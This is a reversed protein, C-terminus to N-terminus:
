HTIRLPNKLWNDMLLCYSSRVENFSNPIIYEDHTASLIMSTAYIYKVQSVVVTQSLTNSIQKTMKLVGFWLTNMLRKPSAGPEPKPIHYSNQPFILHDPDSQRPVSDICDKIPQFVWWLFIEKFGAFRISIRSIKCLFFQKQRQQMEKNSHLNDIKTPCNM